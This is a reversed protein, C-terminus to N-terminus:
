SAPRTITREPATVLARLEALEEATDVDILEAPTTVVHRGARVLDRAGEDGTLSLLFDFRDSGFLAPPSTDVGDSSAVVADPGRAADFLRHIHAATVRPMDALALLVADAGCARAAAVGLVISGAIGDEPAENRLVRYGHAAYDIGCRGTIALRDLFPLAQLTVAVHLGLPRGLFDEDLKSGVDGYRASRGAALLLLVTREVAIM